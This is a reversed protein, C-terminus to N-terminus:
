QFHFQEEGEMNAMSDCALDFPLGKETPGGCGLWLFLRFPLVPEPADVVGFGAVECAVCDLSVNPSLIHQHALNSRTPIRDHLLQWSFAVVKSPAPSCWLTFFGEGAPIWGWSDEEDNLTVTSLCQHLQEVLFVM